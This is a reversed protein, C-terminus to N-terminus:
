FRYEAKIWYSRGAQPYDDEYTEKPAPLTISADTLNKIGAKLELEKLVLRENFLTLDIRSSAPHADRTDGEEREKAGIYRYLLSAGFHADLKKSVGLTGSWAAYRNVTDDGNTANVYSLQGRVSTEDLYRTEYELEAGRAITDGTNAYVNFVGGQNELAILNKLLSYFLGVRIIEERNNFIYAAEYTDVTEAKLTADGKGLPNNQLYLEFYNPPRFAHAYQFKLINSPSLEHVAAIRPSYSAGIDDYDDYRLGFTLSDKEGASWEDQAFLSRVTRSPNNGALPGKEGSFRQYSGLSAKTFPDINRELYADIIYSKTMETGLLVQHGSFTGVALEIAGYPKEEKDYSGALIGDPFSLIKVFGEPFVELRNLRFESSLLGVKARLELDDRLSLTQRAEVARRLHRYDTRDDNRPLVNAQGFGAGEATRFSYAALATNKYKLDFIFTTEDHLTEVTGPAHSVPINNTFGPQYLLDSDVTSYPGDSAADAAILQMMLDPNEYFAAIGTHRGEHAHGFSEYGGFLKGSAKLTVINIVGSYAYEGYLASGPGRIVEIREVAEVPLLLLYPANSSATDNFAIGNLMIKTKGSIYANGIGRVILNDQGFDIGPVLELAEKVTKAGYRKIDRQQLVTILGPLYDINKKSKTALESEQELISFLDEETVEEAFGASLVLLLALLEKKM